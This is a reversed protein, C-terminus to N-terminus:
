KGAALATRAADIQKDLSAGQKFEYDGSRDHEWFTGPGNFERLHMRLWRYREADELLRVNEQELTRAFEVSVCVADGSWGDTAAEDTRPTAIEKSM